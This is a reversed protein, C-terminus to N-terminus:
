LAQLAQIAAKGAAIVQQDNSAARVAAKGGIRAAEIQPGKGNEWFDALAIVEEAVSRATVGLATAEAAIFSPAPGAFGVALWARAQAEKRMYTEAQGPASSIYRLRAVGAAEDISELTRLKVADIGNSDISWTKTVWSWEHFPTPAPPVKIRRGDQIFCPDFEIGEFYPLDGPDAVEIQYVVRGNEDTECIVKSM